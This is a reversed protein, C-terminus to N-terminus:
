NCFGIRLNGCGYDIEKLFKDPDFFFCFFPDFRDLIWCYGYGM